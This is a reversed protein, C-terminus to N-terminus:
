ATGGPRRALRLANSIVAVSSGSMAAAAILPTVLGGIALPITVANYAFSLVFNQKVLSDARRAVDLAELVPTLRAGQFVLDAATQSIDVASAPSASVHAAALAPADNLGDGVMLVRKGAAALAELRAVKDAPSRAAAWGAIGAARAAAAVVPERDGSLLEVTLGRATLAAVVEAADPRLQDRFSFRVAPRGPRSLWMEPGGRGGDGDGGADAGADRAAEDTVGCFPRNGLRVDGGAAPTSLGRGPHETVDGRVPADPCARRLARALPHHSAAAMGAAEALDADTWGGGDGDAVLEPQGLTLTGTKDFVVHDVSCLRELATPAKILIGQRLLRGTAVVQVVPVALALACPCTVILVASAILLAQQWAADGILTWGLFAGLALLHVVPAYLRAVRDALAVYRARGQEAVEMMRVIEALLTGEGVAGTTVRLPGSLNLTGAFVAAGPMVPDPVTEGTLLSTDVDSVGEAVTGDVGIREGAAVLVTMGSSIRAPPLQVLSGDPRVVTVSTAGLALLHEAASRARGRALLDLYRGILLFFLLMVAADFYAHPGGRATEWLSMGAALIVALTIPVDMNTRRGALATIASRAFPRIAYLIAPIAILASLWHMFDRTNHGMDVGFWISVSFLMVNGSAFGAVAMAKLLDKEQRRTEQDLVAPDFPVLRYGVRFVPDLIRAAGKDPVTEDARFRLTLRRTTMNVRAHTVAADRSLLSEILWVCAACHLGEVMLYLVAEGPAEETKGPEVTVHAGLDPTGDGDPRLARTEPDVCRRRYYQSLGQDNILAYAGACGVCCFEPAAPGDEPM